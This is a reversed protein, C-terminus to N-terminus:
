LFLNRRMTDLVTNVSIEKLCRAYGLPARCYSKECPSCHIESPPTLNMVRPGQPSIYCPDGPGFIVLTPAQAISASVHAVGSDNALVLKAKSCIQVLDQLSTTGIKDEVLPLAWRKLRTKWASELDTGVVCIRLDPKIEKIKFLLEPFYPWERLPLAAGPALVWYDDKPEISQRAMENKIKTNKSVASSGILNLLDFYLDSKHKRGKIGKWSLSRHYLLQSGKQSFGIRFPVQTKKFFLASSWSAPLSISLDFKAEKIKNIWLSRTDSRKLENRTFGWEENFLSDSFLGVLGKPLLATIETHPLLERLGRYLSLAM